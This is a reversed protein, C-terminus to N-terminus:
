AEERAFLDRAAALDGAEMGYKALLYFQDWFNALFILRPLQIYVHQALKDLLSREQIQKAIKGLREKDWGHTKTYDIDRFALIAKVSLQVCEQAAEVAESHLGRAKLRDRATQLHNWAKDVLAEVRRRKSTEM